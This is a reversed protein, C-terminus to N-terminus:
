PNNDDALRDVFFFVSYALLFGAIDDVVYHWGFYITSLVMILFPFFCLWFVIRVYRFLFFLLVCSIAIHLSPFAAIGNKVGSKKALKCFEQPPYQKVKEYATWLSRQLQFNSTKEIHSEISRFKEPYYYIPGQAPFLFYLILGLIYTTSFAIVMRKFVEKDNVICYISSFAFIKLLFYFKYGFSLYGVFFVPIWKILLETPSHKFFLYYDMINIQKDYLNHNVIPIISKLMCYSFLVIFIPLWDRIFRIINLFLTKLKRISFFTNTKKSRKFLYIELSCAWLIVPAYILWRLNIERLFYMDISAVSLIIFLALGSSLITWGFKLYNNNIKSYFLFALFIPFLMLWYKMLDTFIYFRLSYGYTFSVISAVIFFSISLIETSRLIKTKQYYNHEKRIIMQILIQLFGFFKQFVM